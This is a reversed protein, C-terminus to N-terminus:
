EQRRIGASPGANRATEQSPERVMRETTAPPSRFQRSCDSERMSHVRGVIRSDGLDEQRYATLPSDHIRLTSSIQLDNCISDGVHLTM